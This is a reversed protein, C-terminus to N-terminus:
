KINSFTKKYILKRKRKDIRNVVKQIEYPNILEACEVEFQAAENLSMTENMISTGIKRGVTNILFRSAYHNCEKCKERKSLIIRKRNLCDFINDVNKIFILINKYSAYKNLESVLAALNSYEFYSAVNEAGIIKGICTIYRTEIPMNRISGNPNFARYGYDIGYGLTGYNNAQYFGDCVLKFRHGIYDNWQIQDPFCVRVTGNEVKKRLKSQCDM